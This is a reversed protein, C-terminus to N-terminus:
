VVCTCLKCSNSYTTDPHNISKILIEWLLRRERELTNILRCLHTSNGGIAVEKWIRSCIHVLPELRHLAFPSKGLAAVGMEGILVLNRTGVDTEM